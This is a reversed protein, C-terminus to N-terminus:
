QKSSLIGHSERFKGPTVGTMRKFVKSFYSQDEFGVLGSVDVLRIKDSLLLAKSRDIRIKNLYSNFNCKMEDKFIKSFYSPSLFVHAAVEELTIKKSYNRRIYDVAKRIVDIHKVDNFRFVYDMFKNMVASLWVCLDDISTVSNIERLYRHNLNFIVNSDAGGDIAARSLLVILEFVRSKIIEFNGGSSFFIYGLIENLLRQSANKNSDTIAQMLAHETEFPYSPVIESGSSKLQHLFEGIQGQIMNSDQDNLQKEAASVNNVFGISFFLLNSMQTVREPSVYPIKHLMPLIKRLQARSLGIADQLDYKIFDDKDVMMLPGATIMGISSGNEDFLPSVFCTLGMPCFYIYKGGFREAQMTGYLHVDGCKIKKRSNQQMVAECIGCASCSYGTSYLVDGSSNSVACGLGTSGNFSDACQIALELSFSSSREAESTM